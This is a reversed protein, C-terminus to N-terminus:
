SELEHKKMYKKSFGMVLNMICRMTPKSLRMPCIKIYFNTSIQQM